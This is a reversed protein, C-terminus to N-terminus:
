KEEHGLMRERISSVKGPAPLPVYEENNESDKTMSVILGAKVRLDNTEAEHQAEIEVQRKNQIGKRRAAKSQPPTVSRASKVRKTARKTVREVTEDLDVLAQLKSYAARDDALKRGEHYTEVERWDCGEFPSHPLLYCPVPLRGDDFRLYILDVCRPDYGIRIKWSGLNRAKFRWAEKQALDCDYNLGKFKIGQATVTAEGEPLLNVRITEPDRFRPHGSYNEIGWYFLELPYPQVGDVIMEATMEYWGMRNQNNHYLIAAILIEYIDDINLVANLRYDQDGRHRNPDVAGPLGHVVRINLLGFIREVIAKWDARFPPLTLLHINLSAALNDANYGKAPGRDGCLADPLVFAPWLESTITIGYRACFEVKDKTANELALMYGLWGEGELRVCVGTILRSFVDIVIYVVPRGIIDLPNLRSVLYVDLLTADIQYTAGPWPAEDTSNGKLARHQLNFRREGVRRLLSEPLHQHRFKKYHYVFQRYSFVEGRLPDPIREIKKGEVTEKIRKCLKRLTLRYAKGLTTGRNEYYQTGGALIITLDDETVNKGTHQNDSKSIRSPRGLKCKGPKRPKGKGGCNLYDALLANKTQGRQSFRRLLNRITRPCVKAEKARKIILHNRHRRCFILRSEDGTVLPEIVCWNKDRKTRIRKYKPHSLQAETLRPPAYPDEEILVVAKSQLQSVLDDYEYRRPQAGGDQCDITIVENDSADVHLIREHIIAAKDTCWELIRNLIPRLAM